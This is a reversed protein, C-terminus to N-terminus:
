VKKVILIGARCPFVVVSVQQMAMLDRHNMEPGAAGGGQQAAALMAMLHAPMEGAASTPINMGVPHAGPFGAPLGPYPM